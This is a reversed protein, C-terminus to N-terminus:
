DNGGVSIMHTDGAMFRCKTVFSSHGYYNKHAANDKICPWRYLQIENEDGAAVYKANRTRGVSKHEAMGQTGWGAKCTWDFWELDKVASAFALDGNATMFAPEGCTAAITTSNVDWDIATVATSGIDRKAPHKKMTLDAGIEGIDIWARGGHSGVAVKTNDPSIRLAEVWPAKSKFSHVNFSAKMTLTHDLLM